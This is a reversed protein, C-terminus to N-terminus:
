TNKKFREINEFNIISKYNKRANPRYQPYSQRYFEIYHLILVEKKNNLM